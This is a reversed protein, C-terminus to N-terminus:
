DKVYEIMMRQFQYQEIFRIMERLTIFRYIRKDISDNARNIDITLHWM